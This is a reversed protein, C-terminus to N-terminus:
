EVPLWSVGSHSSLNLNLALPVARSDQGNSIVASVNFISSYDQLYVTGSCIGGSCRAEFTQATGDPGSFTIEYSFGEGVVSPTFTYSLSGGGTNRFTVGSVTVTDPLPPAASVTEPLNLLLLAIPCLLLIALIVCLVPALRKSAPKAPAYSKRPAQPEACRGCLADISIELADALAILKTMDPMAEGTEWKSVAQRSVQIREALAEQSMGLSRRKQALIESFSM